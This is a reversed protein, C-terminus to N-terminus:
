GNYNNYWVCVLMYMIIYLSVLSFGVTRLAGGFPTGTNNTFNMTANLDVKTNIINICGGINSDFHNVGLFTLPLRLTTIIGNIGFRFSSSSSVGENINGKFQSFM